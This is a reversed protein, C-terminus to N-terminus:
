HIIPSREPANEGTWRGSSGAMPCTSVYQKLSAYDDSTWPKGWSNPPDCYPMMMFQGLYPAVPVWCKGPNRQGKTCFVFPDNARYGLAQYYGSSQALLSFSCMWLSLLVLRRM